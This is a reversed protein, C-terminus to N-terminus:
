ENTRFNPKTLQKKNLKKILKLMDRLGKPYDYEADGIRLDKRGIIESTLLDIYEQTMRKIDRETPLRM